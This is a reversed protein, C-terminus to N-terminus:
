VDLVRQAIIGHFPYEGYQQKDNDADDGAAIGQAVIKGIVVFPHHILLKEAVDM